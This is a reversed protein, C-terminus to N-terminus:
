KGGLWRWYYTEYIAIPKESHSLDSNRVGLRRPSDLVTGQSQSEVAQQSSVAAGWREVDEKVTGM